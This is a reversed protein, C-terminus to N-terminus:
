CAEWASCDSPSGRGPQAGHAPPPTAKSVSHAGAHLPTEADERLLPFNEERFLHVQYQRIHEPGLQDPARHFYKSFEELIFTYTEVTNQSYNRRQGTPGAPGRFRM